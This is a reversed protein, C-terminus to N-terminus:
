ELALDEMLARTRELEHSLGSREWQAAAQEWHARAGALDGRDRCVTGWAMQTRAAELRCQGSELLCLSRGLQSEAEDWQPGEAESTVPLGLAGLAQGWARRAMAEAVIGGVEQAVDV